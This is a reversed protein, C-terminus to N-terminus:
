LRWSRYAITAFIACEFLAPTTDTSADDVVIFECGALGVTVQLRLSDLLAGIFAAGNRVPVVV